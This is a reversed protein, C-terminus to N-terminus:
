IGRRHGIALVLVIVNRDEIRCILRYDGIRYRWLGQRDAALAAGLRRPHEDGAIRERLFRLIRTQVPRDLRRLERAARDDLEVTWTL